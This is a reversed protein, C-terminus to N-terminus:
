RFYSELDVDGDGDEDDNESKDEHIVAPAQEQFEVEPEPEIGWANELEEFHVKLAKRLKTKALSKVTRNTRPNSSASYKEMILEIDRKIQDSVDMYGAELQKQIGSIHNLLAAKILLDADQYMKLGGIDRAHRKHRKRNRKYHGTGSEINAKSASSPSQSFIGTENGCKEYIDLWTPEIVEGIIRRHTAAGINKIQQVMDTGHGRLLSQNRLMNEKLLEFAEVITPHLGKGSALLSNDFEEIARDV